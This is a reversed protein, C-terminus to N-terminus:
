VFPTGLREGQFMDLRKAAQDILVGFDYTVRNPGIKLAPAEFSVLHSLNSILSHAAAMAQSAAYSQVFINAFGAM